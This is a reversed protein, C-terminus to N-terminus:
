AEDDEWENQQYDDDPEDHTDEAYADEDVGSEVNEIKDIIEGATEVVRYGADEDEDYAKKTYVTTRRYIYSQGDKGFRPETKEEKISDINGLPIYVKKKFNDGHRRTMHLTIYRM